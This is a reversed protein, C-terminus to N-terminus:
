VNILEKVMELERIQSDITNANRTLYALCSGEHRLALIKCDNNTNDVLLYYNGSKVYFRELPVNDGRQYDAVFMNYYDLNEMM